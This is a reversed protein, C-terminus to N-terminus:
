RRGNIALLAKSVAQRSKGLSTAITITPICDCRLKWFEFWKKMYAYNCLRSM